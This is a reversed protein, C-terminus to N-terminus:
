APHEPSFAHESQNTIQWHGGSKELIHDILHSAKTTSHHLCCDSFFSLNNYATQHREQGRIEAPSTVLKKKEHLFLGVGLSFLLSNSEWMRSFPWLQMTCCSGEEGRAKFYPHDSLQLRTNRLWAIQFCPAKFLFGM